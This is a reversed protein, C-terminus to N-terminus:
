YLSVPLLMAAIALCLPSYLRTDWRAFASGREKKFFGVYRFDGIARLTFVAFLVWSGVPALWRPLDADIFGVRSLVVTAATFLLVAVILTAIPGPQFLKKGEVEPVVVNMGGAGGLAWYVHIMGLLGFISVLVFAIVFIM